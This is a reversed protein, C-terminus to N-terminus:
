PRLRVIGDCDSPLSPTGSAPGLLFTDCTVAGLARICQDYAEGVGVVRGCPLKAREAQLCGQYSGTRESPQLVREIVECDSKRTCYTELLHECRAQLSPEDHPESSGCSVVVLCLPALWWWWWMMCDYAARRGSYITSREVLAAFNSQRLARENQMATPVDRFTSVSNRVVSVITTAFLVEPLM